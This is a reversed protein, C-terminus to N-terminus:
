WMRGFWGLQYKEWQCIIDLAEYYLSDHVKKKKERWCMTRKTPRVTSHISFSGKGPVGSCGSALCQTKRVKCSMAASFLASPEVAGVKPVAGSPHM